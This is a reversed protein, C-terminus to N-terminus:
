VIQQTLIKLLNVDTSPLMIIGDPYKKYGATTRDADTSATETFGIVETNSMPRVIRQKFDMSIRYDENLVNGINHGSFNDVIFGNKLRDLGNADKLVLDATEKELLNLSNYYELNTVRKEIKGIDRMTFRRNDVVTIKVDNVDYLYAPLELTALTMGSEIDEPTIPNESSVGKIIVFEGKTYAEQTNASPDLVIKDTRPLYFSYGIKSAENPTVVLTPNM